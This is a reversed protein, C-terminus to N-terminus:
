DADDPFLAAVTASFGPLADGGDVTDDTTHLRAIGDPTHVVLTRSEPDLVWVAQTGARLYGAVKRAVETARDDPSLIEVALDPAGEHYRHAVERAPLRETRLFSVDPGRVTDPRRALVHGSEVAVVGLRRSRVFLSLTVAIHAAITGHAWGPPESVVLRGEVLEYRRDDDPLAYLDEATLLPEATRSASM